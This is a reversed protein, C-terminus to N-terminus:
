NTKSHRGYYAKRRTDEDRVGLKGSERLREIRRALSKLSREPWMMEVRNAEHLEWIEKATKNESFEILFLDETHTFALGRGM